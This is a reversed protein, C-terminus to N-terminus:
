KLGKRLAERFREEECLKTALEALLSVRESDELKDVLMKVYVKLGELKREEASM